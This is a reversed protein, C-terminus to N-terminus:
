PDLWIETEDIPPMKMVMTVGASLVYQLSTSKCTPPHKPSKCSVANKEKM